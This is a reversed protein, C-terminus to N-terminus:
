ACGSPDPAPAPTQNTTATITLKGDIEQILLEWQDLVVFKNGVLATASVTGTATGIFGSEYIKDLQESLVAFERATTETLARVISGTQLDVTSGGSTKLVHCDADGPIDGHLIVAVRQPAAAETSAIPAFSFVALVTILLTPIRVLDVRITDSGGLGLRHISRHPLM